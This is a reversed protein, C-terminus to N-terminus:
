QLDIGSPKEQCRAAALCNKKEMDRPWKQPPGVSSGVVCLFLLAEWGEAWSKVGRTEGLQLIKSSTTKHTKKKGLPIVITLILIITVPLLPLTSNMRENALSFIKVPLGRFSVSDRFQFSELDLAPDKSIVGRGSWGARKCLCQSNTSKRSRAAPLAGGRPPPVRPVPFGWSGWKRVM